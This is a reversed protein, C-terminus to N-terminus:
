FGGGSRGGGGFGGGSSFGGGHGGFSGGSSSTSERTIARQAGNYAQNVSDNLISSFNYNNIFIYTNNNMNSVDIEKIKVNMDKQVKKALGFITAYVLYREWLIVEPLEKTSFSGFDNLFNKFAKWKAYHEIGKKSKRKIFCTYILFILALPILLHLLSFDVHFTFSGIFDILIAIILMIIGWVYKGKLNDFFKEKKGDSIVKNKWNTYSNMFIDCTKTSSAYRKLEKTTFTDNCGVKSFLFDVLINETNNLNDRNKLTFIYNKEDEPNKQAEINKKYILNMISASMANPTINYNM